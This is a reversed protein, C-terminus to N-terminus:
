QLVYVTYGDFQGRGPVAKYTANERIGFSGYIEKKMTDTMQLAMGSLQKIKKIEM